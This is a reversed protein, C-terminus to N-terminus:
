SAVRWDPTDPIAIFIYLRTHTHTHSLSHTLTLWETMDSEQSGMSQLGGSEETGPITWSSCQLPNGNREGPSRGSATILGLDGANCASEKGESGGLFGAISSVPTDSWLYVSGVYGVCSLGAAQGCGPGKSQIQLHQKWNIVEPSGLFEQCKKPDKSYVQYTNTYHDLDDTM